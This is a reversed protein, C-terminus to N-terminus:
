RFLRRARGKSRASPEEAEEAEYLVGNLRGTVAVTGSKLDLVHVRLGEGELNLVGCVTVLRVLSEDFSLVESVGKVTIENRELAVLSHGREASGRNGTASEQRVTTAGVREMGMDNM